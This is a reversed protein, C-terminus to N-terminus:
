DRRFFLAAAWGSLLALLVAILAYFFPQDHAFDFITRGVGFKQILLSTTQGEIIDGDRFLYISATYSGVPVNAPIHINARFLTGGLFSVTATERSFLGDRLRNRILATKFLPAEPDGLGKEPTFRLNESGVELRRAQSASLIEALPASAAVAYFGPLSKFTFATSNVWIGAVREKRRVVVDQAPGRVVIVIDGRPADPVTDIAGFILLDTGTFSSTVSVLHSSIDTLLPAAARASAAPLAMALTLLFCPIWHRM